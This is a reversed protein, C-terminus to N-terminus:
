SAAEKRRKYIPVKLESVYQFTRSAGGLSESHGIFLYGDRHLARAFIGDVLRTQTPKDFYIMVNRCFIVDVSELPPEDEFLNHVRFEVRARAEERVARTGSTAAAFPGAAPAEPEFYRALADAPVLRLARQGYVGTRAREIVTTSIDTGIIQVARGARARPSADQCARDAVM